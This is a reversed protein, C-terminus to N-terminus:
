KRELLIRRITHMFYDPEQIGTNARIQEEIGALALSIFSALLMFVFHALNNIKCHSSVNKESYNSAENNIIM